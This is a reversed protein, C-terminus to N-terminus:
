LGPEHLEPIGPDAPLGAFEYSKRDSFITGAPDAWVDLEIQRAGLDAFQETLAPQEYDWEKVIADFAPLETLLADIFQPNPRRHFSNHTGMVQMQNLRIAGDNPYRVEAGAGSTGAVSAALLLAVVTSLLLARRM